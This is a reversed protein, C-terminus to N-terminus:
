RPVVHLYKCNDGHVCSGGTSVNRCVGPLLYNGDHFLNNRRWIEKSTFQFKKFTDVMDNMHHGFHAAQGEKSMINSKSTRYTIRIQNMLAPPIGEIIHCNKPGHDKNVMFDEEMDQSWAQTFKKDERNMTWIEDKDTDALRKLGPTIAQGSPQGQRGSRTRSPPRLQKNSHM